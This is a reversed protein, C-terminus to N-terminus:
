ADCRMADCRMVDYWVARACARVWARVKSLTTTQEAPRECLPVPRWQASRDHVDHRCRCRSTSRRQDQAPHERDRPWPRVSARSRCLLLLPSRQLWAATAVAVAASSSRGGSGLMVPPTAHDPRPDLCALLVHHPTRSPRDTFLCSIIHYSM